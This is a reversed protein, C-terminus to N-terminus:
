SRVLAAADRVSLDPLYARAVALGISPLAIPDAYCLLLIREEPQFKNKFALLSRFGYVPELADGLYRLVREIVGDEAPDKGGLQALPAASLSMEEIGDAQFRLAAEAILYEMVGNMSDSRRRMFDLTWSVVVGDRYVPLWSTVAHVAGEADVAILLRVDADKLEALGGLTFGMEPLERDAVWEESIETIQRAVSVSLAGYSSWVTQMGARDARNISSRIDQWKKGTTSWSQPHLVTEQAVELSRWGLGHFVEGYVAGVSYFAPTWGNDDCFAAFRRVVEPDHRDAGFPEGTTVAVGSIVRYGIGARARDDFWHRNGQWTNMHSISDGGQALLTTVRQGDAGRLDDLVSRLPWATALLVISWWIPGVSHYLAGAAQDIPLFGPVIHRLYSVPIFREPASVIITWLDPVPSFQDRLLFSGVVFVLGLVFWSGVVVLLYGLISRRTSRVRFSRRFVILLVAVTLPVLVSAWLAAAVEVSHLHTGSQKPSIVAGFGFSVAGVFAFGALVVAAFWVAFRRGRALARAALLLALMPVLSLLVSGPGDIRLLTLDHICQMSNGTFRCQDVAGTADPINDQMLLAIPALPGLHRSSLITILPGVALMTVASALLVRIEHHSSRQRRKTTRRPAMLMGLGLGALVALLRYLDQPLGSYLVFLLCGLLSLARIRRRWLPGIFASAAVLAGLAGSVPDFVVLGAVHSSWLEGRLHGLTQLGLGIWTGVAATVVIAVVTRSPGLRREAVLLAPIGILLFLVLGAISDTALISTLPTWWRGDVVAESYGTGLLERLFSEQPAAPPIHGLTSHGATVHKPAMVITMVIVILAYTITVWSNQLTSKLVRMLPTAAAPQKPEPVNPAPQRPGAQRPGAQKPGDHRTAIAESGAEPSGENSVESM